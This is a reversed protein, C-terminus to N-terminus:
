IERGIGRDAGTGRCWGRGGGGGGGVGVGVGDTSAQRQETAQRTLTSAESTLARAVAALQPAMAQNYQGRFRGADPGMWTVSAVLSRLM